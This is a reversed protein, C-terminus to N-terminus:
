RAICVKTTLTKAGRTLRAFYLGPALAGEDGLDVVHRGVGLPGVERTRVRRGAIDLLDLTAAMGDPLTLAIRPSGPAPNPTAGTLAFRLPARDGPVGTTQGDLNLAWTERRFGEADLGGFIVMRHAGPDYYGASGMGPPSIALDLQRWGGGNFRYEWTDTLYSGSASKGGWILLRDAVPDYIASHFTRSPPASGPGTLATWAGNGALSLSWMGNGAVGDGGGFVIMRDRVPDHTVSHGWRQGPGSGSPEIRTWTPTGALTLTWVQNRANQAPYGAFYLVRDRVPDYAGSAWKRSLPGNNTFLSSWAPTDGGSLAIVDRRLSGSGTEGAFVVMRDRLEDWVATAGARAVNADGNSPDDILTWDSKGPELTWIEATVGTPRAGGYLFVRERLPDRVLAADRREDMTPRNERLQTWTAGQSGSVAWVDNTPGLEGEGAFVVFRGQVADRVGSVYARKAPSAGSNLLTWYGGPALPFAYLNHQYQDLANKGGYVLLRHNAPDYAAAAAMRDPGGSMSLPTWVPPGTLSLAWVDAFLQSGVGGHLIMRVGVPDFVAQSWARPGPSGSASLQTWTPTGELSLAWADQLYGFAPIGLGGFIVMRHGAEDYIAASAARAPPVGGVAALPSWMPTGSLNLQYLDGGAQAQTGGYHIIRDGVPDYIASSRYGTSPVAGISPIRTWLAPGSLDLAWVDGFRPDNNQTEFYAILRNRASDYAVTYEGSAPPAEEPAIPSWMGENAAVSHSALCGAAVLGAVLVPCFFSRVHSSSNSRM